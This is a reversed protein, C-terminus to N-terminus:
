TLPEPEVKPEVLIGAAAVVDIGVRRAQSQAGGDRPGVVGTVVPSEAATWDM